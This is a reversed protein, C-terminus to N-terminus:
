GTGMEVARAGDWLFWDTHVGRFGPERSLHYTSLGDLEEYFGWEEYSTMLFDLDFAVLLAMLQARIKTDIGAFAEDLLILRPATSAAAAYFAAAAAFLPLHLMVAKQGGSGAGHVKRTLRKWTSGPDADRYDIAFAFWTRYDLVNLMREELSGAGDATRAEDLRQQLFQRLASRNADSLLHGARLVLDIAERTGPPADDTVVWHLRLTRGSATPCRALQENMHAVLDSAQRLRARLHEHTEGSLFSEFLGQEDQDLLRDRSAIDDTLESALVLLGMDRGNLTSQYDLVGHRRQPLVRVDSPLSRLLDQQKTSVRNEERERSELSPDTGETAADVKRAVLLTDTLTWTAPARAEEIGTFALFGGEALTKLEAEAMTRQAEATTVERGATSLDGSAVGVRQDQESKRARAGVLKARVDRQEIEAVELAALLEERTAGVAERLTEARTQARRAESAAQEADTRAQELRRRGTETARAHVEYIEERAALERAAQLLERAADAYMRTVRRLEDLMDLGDPRSVWARLGLKVAVADREDMAARLHQRAQEHVGTARDHALRAHGLRTQAAEAELRARLVPQSSPFREVENRLASRRARVQDLQTQIDRLREELAVIRAELLALRRERERERATAGIYAPTDKRWAGHLPGVRFHGDTSVWCTARPPQGAPGAPAAASVLAVTRLVREVMRADVGGTATPALVDALTPGSRPAAALMVDFTDRDLLLGEPTVWADLLGAAELAAEVCAHVRTDEGRFDCLMYLPAGPRGAPRPTRWAPPTPPPHSTATLAAHEARVGDLVRAQERRDSELEQVRDDLVVRVAEARRQVWPAMAEPAADLLEQRAIDDLALVDLGDLWASVQAIFKEGATAEATIAAQLAESADRVGQDADQLRERAREAEHEARQVLRAHQALTDVARDRDALVSQLTGRAADLDAGAIQEDIAQHAPALTAADAAHRASARADALRTRAAEVTASAQALKTEQERLREIETDAQAQARAAHAAQTRALQEAQDLEQVAQYAESGRLTRLREDVIEGRQELAHIEEDLGAQALLAQEHAEQAQRLAARARQYASDARTMELARAKATTKVYRRYVDLFSKVAKLTEAFGDREARHRDLRQFGEALRGIVQPELPPLSATLIRSLAEPQLAKSLQPRRLQLLTEILAGYQDESMGFLRQNVMRRYDAKSDFVTGAAGIAEELRGRALPVHERTLHLECDVRQSTIFYWPVVGPTGRKARLGAGITCFVPQGAELRGLELWVYGIRVQVDPVQDNILNWYMPRAMSGFPDLRQPSLDADLLFPLLVEIAKTKGSENRGRLLLRGRHFVFRQDDYEWINQLGARLFQWRPKDPRPQRSALADIHPDLASM